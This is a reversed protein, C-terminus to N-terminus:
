GGSPHAKSMSLHTERNAQKKVGPLPSPIQEISYHDPNFRETPRRANAERAPITVNEPNRKWLFEVQEM